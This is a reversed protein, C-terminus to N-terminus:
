GNNESKIEKLVDSQQNMICSYLQKRQERNISFHDIIHLSDKLIDLM